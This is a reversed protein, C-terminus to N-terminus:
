MAYGEAAVALEQGAAASSPPDTAVPATIIAGRPWGAGAQAAQTLLNTKAPCARLQGSELMAICIINRRIFISAGWDLAELGAIM